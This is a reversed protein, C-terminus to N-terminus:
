SEIAQFYFGDAWERKPNSRKQSNTHQVKREGNYKGTNYKGVIHREKHREQQRERHQELMQHTMRVRTKPHVKTLGNQNFSAPSGLYSLPTTPRRGWVDFQSKVKAGSINQMLALAATFDEKDNRNYKPKGTWGTTRLSLPSALVAPLWVL